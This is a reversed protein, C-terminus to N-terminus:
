PQIQRYRCLGWSVHLCFLAWFPVRLSVLVYPYIPGFIDNVKLRQWRDSLYDKLWFIFGRNVDCAVLSNILKNHLVRDFAKSFDLCTMRVATVYSRDLYSTVSDHMKVLASETSGYRRFAHQSAGYLPTLQSSVSKLVLRELLKSLVPTLSIPRFDTISPKKCKPIPSVDALKWCTPFHRSSISQTFIRFLPFSLWLAGERLLRSPVGDSGSVKKTDLRSLLGEVDHVSFDPWWEEDEFSELDEYRVAYRNKLGWIIGRVARNSPRYIYFAM